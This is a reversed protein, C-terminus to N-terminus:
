KKFTIVIENTNDDKLVEAAEAPTYIKRLCWGDDELKFSASKCKTCKLNAELKECGDPYASFKNAKFLSELRNLCITRMTANDRLLCSAKAMNYCAEVGSACYIKGTIDSVGIGFFQINKVSEPIIVDGNVVTDGITLWTIDTVNDSFVVDRNVQSIEFIGGGSNKNFVVDGNMTVGGFFAYVNVDNFTFKGSANTIQAGSRAFAEQGINEFDNDFVINNLPLDKKDADLVRRGAYYTPSFAGQRISASKSIDTKYIHLVQQGNENIVRYSCNDGCSNNGNEDTLKDICTVETGHSNTCVPTVDDAWSEGTTILTFLLALVPITIVLLMRQIRRPLRMLWTVSTFLSEKNAHTCKEPLYGRRVSTRRTIVNRIGVIDSAGRLRLFSLVKETM